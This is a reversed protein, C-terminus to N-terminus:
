VNNVRLYFSFKSLLQKGGWFFWFLKVPKLPDFICNIGGALNKDMNSDYPSRVLDKLQTAVKAEFLDKEPWPPWRRPDFFAM